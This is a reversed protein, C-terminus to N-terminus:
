PPRSYRRANRIYVYRVIVVMNDLHLSVLNPHKNVINCTKLILLGLKFKLSFNRVKKDLKLM